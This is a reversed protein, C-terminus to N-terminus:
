IKAASTSEKQSDDMGRLTKGKGKGGKTRGSGKLTGRMDM